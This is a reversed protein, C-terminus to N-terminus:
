STATAAAATPSGDVGTPSPEGTPSSTPTGSPSATPGPDSPAPTPSQSEAPRSPRPESSRTSETPSPPSTDPGESATSQPLMALLRAVADLVRQADVERLTGAERAELVVAKMARLQRRAAAFRHEALAEDVRELASTLAPVQDSASEARQQAGGCGGAVLALAVLVAALVRSV